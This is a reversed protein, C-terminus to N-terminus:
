AVRDNDCLRAVHEVSRMPDRLCVQTALLEYGGNDKVIPRWGIPGNSPCQRIVSGTSLMEARATACPPYTAHSLPDAGHADCDLKPALPSRITQAVAEQAEGGPSAIKRVQV